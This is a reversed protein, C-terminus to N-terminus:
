RGGGHLTEAVSRAWSASSQILLGVAAALLAFAAGAAIWVGQTPSPEALAAILLPAPSAIWLAVATTLAAVRRRDHATALEDAWREVAANRAFRGQRLRAFPALRGSRRILLIAGVVTVLLLALLGLGIAVEVSVSLARADAGAILLLLPIPSAVFAALAGGLHLRTRRAADAFREAEGLTAPPRAGQAVDDLTGVPQGGKAAALGLTPALEDLDGFDTIVRGAAESPSAGSAILEAYADEMMTRLEAKAELLRPTQPYSDFVTELHATIANM